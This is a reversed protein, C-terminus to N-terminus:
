HILDLPDKRQLRQYKPQTLIGRALENPHTELKLQYKISMEKIVDKVYKINLDSHINSNRIFWPANVIKRLMKSQSRQIIDINSSSTSGWIQIGYTWIPKIIAKYILVKCDMSLKSNPNILWYLQGFKIKMQQRKTEVQKKWTLRRDLHLGLYKVERHQPLIKNNLKVAPCTLKNLTFTIHTSKTENTKINWNKLYEEFELLYDQLERSATQPNKNTSLIATDDAFTSLVVSKSTPIPIDATFLLYLIPGLVSGQPVGSKIDFLNSAATEYKVFYKRDTLYNTLINHYCYPLNAKIKYILGEHWVKDFAQAIDLFAASCYNRNDLAQKIECVIRHVQEVTGHEERFGFQFKPLIDDLHSKLKEALLKEFLKSLIPLLSIPRYSAAQTSDKGPKPIMIIQSIKWKRPYYGVRMIANFLYTLVKIFKDPLERIMKGTILDEGAAKKPNIQDCIMKKVNKFKFKILQTNKNVLVEPLNQSNRQISPTFVEELHMAFAEAKETDSRAWNGNHLRIPPYQLQPRKIKKTAKWLSYDTYVTPSLEELYKQIGNNREAILADKLNKISRNLEYKTSPSRFHQWQRRLKRKEQLLQQISPSINSKRNSPSHHPTSNEAAEKMLKNILEATSDIDEPTKLAVKMESNQELIKRYLLWNTKHNTLHTLNETTLSETYLTLLVPSHDSSLDYCVNPKMFSKPVGKVVFFDLLDPIKQRDSPWYTPHGTSVSDLAKENIAELLQKGKTSVLRSGWFTHKSNYDGGAIFKEGLTDFFNIFDRKKIAHKPPCYVASIICKSNWEELCISTAQIHDKCYGEIEHHKIRNKILIATGGHGKGSPHKTDYLKYGNFKLYNKETFHTESILMIDLNQEIIFTQVELKHQSLGNANWLAIKLENMKLKTANFYEYM